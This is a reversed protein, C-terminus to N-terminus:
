RAPGKAETNEEPALQAPKLTWAQLRALDLLHNGTFGPRFIPWNWTEHTNRTVYKSADLQAPALSVEQPPQRGDLLAGAVDALAVLYTAPTYPEGGIWVVTPVQANTKLASEVDQVAWKFQYWPVKTAKGMQVGAGDSSPGLPTGDLEIYETPGKQIVRSVYTNLLWLVESASLDYDRYVQFSVAPQVNHAIEALDQRSFPRTQAADPYLNLTEPATVFQV